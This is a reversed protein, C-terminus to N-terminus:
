ALAVPLGPRVHEPCRPREILDGCLAPSSHLVEFRQDGGRPPPQELRPPPPDRRGGIVLDQGGPVAEGDRGEGFPSPDQVLRPVSVRRAGRELEHLPMQHGAPPHVSGPPVAAHATRSIQLVVGEQGGPRQRQVLGREIELDHSGEAPQGVVHDPQEVVFLAAAKELGSDVGLAQDDPRLLQEVVGDRGAVRGRGVDQKPQGVERTLVAVLSCAGGRQTHGSRHHRSRRRCEAM